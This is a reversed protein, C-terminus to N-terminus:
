EEKRATTKRGDAKEGTLIAVFANIDRFDVNGDSNCDASYISCSSYQEMYGHPDSLALVFPNIDMFSVGGDCNLDGQRVVGFRLYDWAHRSAAGQVSDGWIVEAPGVLRRFVGHHAVCGDILLDYVRMDTSIVCYDHYIGAEFPIVVSENWSYIRARGYVLTLGWADDSYVSVSPDYDWVTVDDVRLRWEMVFSEGPGPDIAGPRQILSYDYVGPDYLSDHTLIGNELTRYAGFGHYVGQYNGWVRTWGQHEPLDDGEWRIWYQEACAASCVLAAVVVVWCVPKAAM